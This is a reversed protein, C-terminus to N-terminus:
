NKNVNFFKDESTITKGHLDLTITDSASCSGNLSVDRMLTITSGNWANQFAKALTQYYASEGIRADFQTHCKKCTYGTDDMEHACLSLYVKGDEGLSTVSDAADAKFNEASLTVGSAAPEAIALSKGYGPKIGEYVGVRIVSDESLAGSVRIPLKWDFNAYYGAKVLGSVTLEPTTSEGGDYYVDYQNNGTVTADTLTIAGKGYIGGGEFTSNNGTITVGKVTVGRESYIGGGHGYSTNGTASAKNDTITANSISVNGANFHIYIGGGNGATATNGTITGGDMTFSCKEGVYVGGGGGDSAGATNDSITGGHMTFSPPDIHNTTGVLFVGGYDENGTIAGGYMTFSSGTQYTGGKKGVQVGGTITGSYLELKGGNVLVEGQVRGSDSCDTLTLTAGSGVTIKGNITQGNLCLNVEGDTPVTWNESVSKTLYYNGVSDPLSDTTTWETGATDHEHGNVDGNGGCVCHTHDAQPLAFAALAACVANYRTMDLKAVQEDTLAEIEADIAKLQEEIKTANDATVTEPLADILAQVALVAAEKGLCASFDANEASCIPCDLNVMEESCRDTCICITEETGKCASLDADEASCVPCDPDIAEKECRTECVCEAPANGSVGPVLGSDQSNCLECTYGCPTGETAPIYGCTDDHEGREHPCSLEKTICGSEESCEHTCATPQAEEAESPTATNESISEELVPYCSEDHEHECAAGETGETYGCDETHEPHHECLGTHVASVDTEVAFAPIGPMTFIMAAALLFAAPRKWKWIM